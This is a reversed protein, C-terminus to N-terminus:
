ARGRTIGRVYADHSLGGDWSAFLGTLEDELEKLAAILRAGMAYHQQWVPAKNRAKRRVSKPLNM